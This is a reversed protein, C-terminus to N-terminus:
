TNRMLTRVPTTLPGPDGQCIFAGWFVPHAYKRRHGIQAERLADARPAGALLREYFDQMFRDLYFDPVKWLSMVLTRAGALVFARRLGFVGEGRRVQGLGTDCASLVVLETGLLDLGSVDEATLLGDQRQAARAATNAGAMALGSGRMPNDVARGWLSMRGGLDEFVGSSALPPGPVTAKTFFGHTALHLVQPSATAKLTGELVDGQLWPRVNLLTAVVLGEVRDVPLPEFYVDRPEVTSAAVSAAVRADPRIQELDFDPDAAVWRISLNRIWAGGSACHM